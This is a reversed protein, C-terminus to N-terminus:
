HTAALTAVRKLPHLQWIGRGIAVHRSQPDVSVGGIGDPLDTATWTTTDLVTARHTNSFIVARGDPTMTTVSMLMDEGRQGRRQFDGDFDVPADLKPLRFRVLTTLAHFILFDTGVFKLSCGTALESVKPHEIPKRAIGTRTSVMALSKGVVAALEIGDPSWEGCWVGMGSEIPALNMSKIQSGTKSDILKLARGAQMMVALKSGDPSFRVVDALGWFGSALKTVAGGHAADLIIASDARSECNGRAGTCPPAGQAHCQVDFTILNADHAISPATLSNLDTRPPCLKAIPVTTESSPDKFAVISPPGNPLLLIVFDRTTVQSNAGVVAKKLVHKKSGDPTEFHGVDTTDDMGNYLIMNGVFTASVVDAIKRVPKFDTTRAILHDNDNQWMIWQGDASWSPPDPPMDAAGGGGDAKATTTSGPAKDQGAATGIPKVVIPPQSQGSGTRTEGGSKTCAIVSLACIVWRSQM